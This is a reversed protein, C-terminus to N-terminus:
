ACSLLFIFNFVILAFSFNSGKTLSFTDYVRYLDGKLDEETIVRDTGSRSPTM